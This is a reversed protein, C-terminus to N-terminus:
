RAVSFLIVISKLWTLIDTNGTCLTSLVNTQEISCNVKQTSTHVSITFTKNTLKDVTLLMNGGRRKDPLASRAACVPVCLNHSRNACSPSNTQSTQWAHRQPQVGVLGTPTVEFLDSRQRSIFRVVEGVTVSGWGEWIIVVLRLVIWGNLTTLQQM